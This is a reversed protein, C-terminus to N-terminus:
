RIGTRDLAHCGATLGVTDHELNFIIQFNDKQLEGWAYQCSSDCNNANCLVNGKPDMSLANADVYNQLKAWCTESLLAGSSECSGTLDFSGQEFYLSQMAARLNAMDALRVADRTQQREWSVVWVFAAFVLLIALLILIWKFVVKRQAPAKVLAGVDRDAILSM